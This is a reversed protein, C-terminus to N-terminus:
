LLVACAPLLGWCIHAEKSYGDYSSTHRVRAPQSGAELPFSGRGGATPQVKAQGRLFAEQHQVLGQIFRSRLCLCSMPPRCTPCSARCCYGEKSQGSSLRCCGQRPICSCSHPGRRGDCLRRCWPSWSCNGVLRPRSWGCGRGPYLSPDQSVFPTALVGGPMPSLLACAEEGVDLLLAEVNRPPYSRVWEGSDTLGVAQATVTSHPGLTDPFGLRRSCGFDGPALSLSACM